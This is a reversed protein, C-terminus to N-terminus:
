SLAVRCSSCLTVPPLGKVGHLKLLSRHPWKRKVQEKKAQAPLDFLNGHSFFFFPPPPSLLSFPLVHFLCGEGNRANEKLIFQIRADDYGDDDEDVDNEVTAM